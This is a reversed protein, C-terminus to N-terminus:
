GLLPNGPRGSMLQWLNPMAPKLTEEGNKGQAVRRPANLPSPMLDIIDNLLAIAGVEHGGAACFVPVFEGAYVVDELGRVMEADTLSGNELYKEM